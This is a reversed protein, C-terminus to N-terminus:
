HVRSLSHKYPLLFFKYGFAEIWVEGHRRNPHAGYGPTNSSYFYFGKLFFSVTGDATIYLKM